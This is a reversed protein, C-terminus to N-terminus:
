GSVCVACVYGGPVGGCGLGGPAAVKHWFSINCWDEASFTRRFSWVASMAHPIQISAPYGPHTIMGDTLFAWVANKQTMAM